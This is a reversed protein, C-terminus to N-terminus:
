RRHFPYEDAWPTRCTYGIPCNGDRTPAWARYAYEGPLCFGDGAVFRDYTHRGTSLVVAGRSAVLAIAQNCTMALTSSRAQAVITSLVLLAATLCAIRSSM